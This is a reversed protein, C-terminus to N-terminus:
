RALMVFRIISNLGLCATALAQLHMEFHTEGSIFFVVTGLVAFRLQQHTKLCDLLREKALISAFACRKMWPNSTPPQVRLETM